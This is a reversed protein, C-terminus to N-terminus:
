FLVSINGTMHLLLVAGNMKQCKKNVRLITLRILSHLPQSAQRHYIDVCKIPEMIIRFRFLCVMSDSVEMKINM